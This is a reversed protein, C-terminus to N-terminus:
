NRKPEPDLITNQGHWLYDQACDNTQISYKVGHKVKALKVQNKQQEILSKQSYEDNVNARYVIPFKIKSQHDFHIEKNTKSKVTIPPSEDEIEASGGVEEIENTTERKRMISDIKKYISCQAAIKENTVFKQKKQVNNKRQDQENTEMQPSM